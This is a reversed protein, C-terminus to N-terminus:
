PCAEAKPALPTYIVARGVSVTKAECSGVLGPNVTAGALAEVKPPAALSM